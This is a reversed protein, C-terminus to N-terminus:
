KPFLNLTRRVPMRWIASSGPKLCQDRQECSCGKFLIGLLRKRFLMCSQFKLTDRTVNFVWVKALNEITGRNWGRANQITSPPYCTNLLYINAPQNNVRCGSALCRFISFVDPHAALTYPETCLSFSPTRRCCFGVDRDSTESNWAPDSNGASLFINSVLSAQLRFSALFFLRLHM